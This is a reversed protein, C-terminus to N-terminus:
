ASEKEKRLKTLAVSCVHHVDSPRVDRIPRLRDSVDKLFADRDCDPVRKAADEIAALQEPALRYGITSRDCM